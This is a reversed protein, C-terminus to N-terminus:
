EACSTFDILWKAHDLDRNAESQRSRACYKKGNLFNVSFINEALPDVFATVAGRNKLNSDALRANIDMGFRSASFSAPLDSYQQYVFNLSDAIIQRPDLNTTPSPAAEVNNVSDPTVLSPMLVSHKVIANAKKEKTKVRKVDPQLPSPLLQVDLIQHM